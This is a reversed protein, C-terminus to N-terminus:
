MNVVEICCPNGHGKFLEEGSKNSLSIDVAGSLGEKIVDKMSGNKPAKLSGADSINARIDLILNGKKITIDVKGDVHNAELIKSNNYTAFRYERGDFTINCIFGRFETNLFPIHAISCMISADRGEFHNSQLWIYEKPFSTGWDKEIYGKGNHFDILNNNYYLGGKLTHKMSIIDHYCEMFPFHSFYGMANPGFRSRHIDMFESYKIRGQLTYDKQKLDLIIADRRFENKDICLNFPHESFTFDKISFEHYHTSLIIRGDIETQIITQIFSHSDVNNKSIGPIVSIINNLDPSVHKFYWGEFYNDSKNKGKYNLPDVNKNSFMYGGFIEFIIDLIIM